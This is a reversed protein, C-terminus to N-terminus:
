RKKRVKIKAFKTKLLSGRVRTSIFSSLKYVKFPPRIRIRFIRKGTYAVIRKNVLRSVPRASTFRIFLSRNLFSKFLFLIPKNINRMGRSLCM